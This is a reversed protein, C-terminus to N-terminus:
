QRAVEADDKALLVAMREVVHVKQSGGVVGAKSSYLAGLYAADAPTIGDPSPRGPCAAFLDTISPLVNCQGLARPESLALM